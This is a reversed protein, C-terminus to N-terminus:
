EGRLDKIAQDVNKNMKILLDPLAADLQEQSEKSVTPRIEKVYEVLTEGASILKDAGPVMIKAVASIAGVIDGININLPLNAEEQFEAM